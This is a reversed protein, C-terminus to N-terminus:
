WTRPDSRGGFGVLGKIGEPDILQYWVQTPPVSYQSALTQGGCATIVPWRQIPLYANLNDRYCRTFIFHTACELSSYRREKGNYKIQLWCEKVKFMVLFHIYAGSFREKLPVHALVEM